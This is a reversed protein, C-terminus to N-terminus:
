GKWWASCKRKYGGDKHYQLRDITRNWFPALLRVIEAKALLPNKTRIKSVMERVHDKSMSEM